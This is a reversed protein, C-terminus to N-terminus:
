KEEQGMWLCLRGHRRLRCRRCRHTCRLSSHQRDSTSPELVVLVRRRMVMAQPGLSSCRGLEQNEQKGLHRRRHHHRRHRRRHDAPRTQGGVLRCTAFMLLLSSSLRRWLPCHWWNCCHRLYLMSAALSHCGRVKAAWDVSPSQFCTSIRGNKALFSGARCFLRVMKQGNHIRYPATRVDIPLCSLRNSQTSCM